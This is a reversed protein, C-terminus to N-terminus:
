VETKINSKTKHVRKEPLTQCATLTLAIFVLLLKKM